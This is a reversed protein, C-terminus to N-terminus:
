PRFVNRFRNSSKIQMWSIRNSPSAFFPFKSCSRWSSETLNGLDEKHEALQTKKTQAVRQVVNLLEAERANISDTVAQLKEKVQIM